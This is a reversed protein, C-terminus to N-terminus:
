EIPKAAEICRIKIETRDVGRLLAQMAHMTRSCEGTPLEYYQVTEGEISINLVERPLEKPAMILLLAYSLAFLILFKNFM